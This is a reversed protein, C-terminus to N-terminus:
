QVPLPSTSWCACFSLLKTNLPKIANNGCYIDIQALMARVELFLLSYNGRLVFRHQQAKCSLSHRRQVNRKLATFRTTSTECGHPLLVPSKVLTAGLGNGADSENLQHFTAIDSLWQVGSSGSWCSCWGMALITGRCQGSEASGASDIRALLRSRARTLAPRITSKM